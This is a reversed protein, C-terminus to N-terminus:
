GQRRFRDTLGREIEALQADASAELNGRATEFVVSGREMGPDGTVEISAARGSVGLYAKLAAEYDPHVRVRATEQAAMQELAAKVLGEIAGPDITLERRLVRRAIAVALRVLDSEAQSRLRPGLSQLEQVARAMREVAQRTEAQMQNRAAAEGQQYGARQAERVREELGPGAAPAGAQARAPGAAAPAHDEGMQEWAISQTRLPDREIRARCSM